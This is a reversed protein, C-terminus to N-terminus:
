IRDRYYSEDIAREYVSQYGDAMQAPGFRLSARAVCRELDIEGLRAYAEVLGDADSALWGTVGPEVIETAAGRAIALVPTGSVMAEIM